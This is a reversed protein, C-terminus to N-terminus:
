GYGQTDPRDQTPGDLAMRRLGFLVAGRTEPTAMPQCLRRFLMRVPRVGLQYRRYSIAPKSPLLTRRRDEHPWVLRLGHALKQLVEELPSQAFLNMGIVLWLTVELNLKRQRRTLSGCETLVEAVARRPFVQALLELRLQSIFKGSPDPHRVRFHM